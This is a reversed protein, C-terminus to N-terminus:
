VVWGVRGNFTVKFVMQQRKIQLIWSKSKCLQVQRISILLGEKCWTKVWDVWIFSIVLLWGRLVRLASVYVKVICKIADRRVRDSFWDMLYASMRPAARHLAFFRHYNKLTFASRVKLAHAICEDCKDDASLHAM